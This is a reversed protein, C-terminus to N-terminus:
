QVFLDVFLLDHVRERGIEAGIRRVLAERLRYTGASGQLDEPRLEREVYYNREVQFVGPLPEDGSELVAFPNALFFGAFVVVLLLVPLVAASRALLSAILADGGTLRLAVGLTYSMISTMPRSSVSSGGFKLVVWRDNGAM